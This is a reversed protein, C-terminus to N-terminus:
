ESLGGPIKEGYEEDGRDVKEEGSGHRAVRDEVEQSFVDEEGFRLDRIKPRFQSQIL